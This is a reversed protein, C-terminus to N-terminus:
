YIIRYRTGSTAVQTGLDTVTGNTKYHTFTSNSLKIDAEMVVVAAGSLATYTFTIRSNNTHIRYDYVTYETQSPNRESFKSTEKLKTDDVLAYLDDFLQSNTKIGDAIVEVYPRNIM